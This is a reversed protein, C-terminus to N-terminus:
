SRKRRVRSQGRLVFGRCLRSPRRSPPASQESRGSARRRQCHERHQHHHAREIRRHHLADPQAAKIKEFLKRRSPILRQRHVDDRDVVLTERLISLPRPRPRAHRLQDILDRRALRAHEADIDDERLRVTKRGAAQDIGIGFNGRLNGTLERMQRRMFRHQGVRQAFHRRHQRDGGSVRRRLRPRGRADRHNKFRAGIRAREQERVRSEDAAQRLDLRGLAAVSAISSSASGSPTM